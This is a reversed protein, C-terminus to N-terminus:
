NKMMDYRYMDCVGLGMLESKHREYVIDSVKNELVDARAQQFYYDYAKPDVQKLRGLSSPKFRLRFEFKLKEKSQLAHDPPYWLRTTRNQLAFLHRTVPSIGIQKCVKM